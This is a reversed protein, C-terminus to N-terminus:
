FFTQIIKKIINSTAPSYASPKVVATNGAALADALPDMTLLFPYNWPSMVLTVGYPESVVMSKGHFNALWTARRQPKAWREVHKMTHSLEKLTIGIETMYAEMSSKGLDAALADLIEQEHNKVSQYIQKMLLIRASIARTAGSAFFARQQAVLQEIQNINSVPM